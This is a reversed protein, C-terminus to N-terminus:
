VSAVRSFGITAISEGYSTNPLGCVFTGIASALGDGLLTRHLGPRETLDVGVINSLVRHDSYHELLACISVPIFLVLISVFTTWNFDAVNEAWHMFAFDPLAFFQPNALWNNLNALAGADFLNLQASMGTANGIFYLIMAILSGAILGFLFPITKAFGKMYHSSLAVILMTIIGILVGMMTADGGLGVYTPIFSALNIGIVITVAGVLVPPFIKNLAQIGKLKILLAFLAYVIFIVVGGVAVALYNGGTSSLALAGVVASVTAGSNSIFMPSKFGTVLQYIITGICGGILGTSIPTGCITSILVTAVFVSLLM